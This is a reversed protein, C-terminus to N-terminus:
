PISAFDDGANNLIEALYSEIRDTKDGPPFFDQVERSVVQYDPFKTNFDAIAIAKFDEAISEACGAYNANFVILAGDADKIMISCIATECINRLLDFFGRVIEELSGLKVSLEALLGVAATQLLKADQAAGIMEIIADDNIRQAERKIRSFDVASSDPILLAIKDALVPFTEPRKELCCDAGALGAYFRDKVEALVTLMIVPIAKTATRSKLMGTSQRGNFLPTEMDTVILHPLFEYVQKVGELGNKARATEYGQETLFDTLLGAFVDSDEFILIRKKDM